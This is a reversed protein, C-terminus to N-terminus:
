ANERQSSHNIFQLRDEYANKSNLRDYCDLLGDEKERLKENVIADIDTDDDDLIAICSHIYDCTFDLDETYENLNSSFGLDMDKYPFGYDYCKLDGDKTYGLQLNDVTDIVYYCLADYVYYIDDLQDRSYDLDNDDACSYLDEACCPHDIDRFVDSVLDSLREMIEIFFGYFYIDALYDKIEDDDKQHELFCQIENHNQNVGGVGIGVKVVYDANADPVNIGCSILFDGTVGYVFRGSGSSLTTKTYLKELLESEQGRTLRDM